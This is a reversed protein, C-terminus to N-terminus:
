QPPDVAASPAPTYNPVAKEVPLDVLLSTGNILEVHTHKDGSPAIAVIHDVNVLWTIGPKEPTSVQPLVMFVPTM